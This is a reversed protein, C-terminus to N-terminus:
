KKKYNDEIYKIVGERVTGSLTPLIGNSDVAEILKALEKDTIKYEKAVDLIKRQDEGTDVGLTNMTALTEAGPGYTTKGDSKGYRNEIENDYMSKLVDSDKVGTTRVEM